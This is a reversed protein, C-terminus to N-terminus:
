SGREIGLLNVLENAVHDSQDVDSSSSAILDRKIQDLRCLVRAAETMAERQEQTPRDAEAAERLKDATERFHNAM